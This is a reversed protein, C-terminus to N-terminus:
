FVCFYFVFYLFPKVLRLRFFSSQVFIFLHIFFQVFFVNKSLTGSSIASVNTTRLAEDVLGTLISVSFIQSPKHLHLQPRHTKKIRHPTQVFGTCTIAGDTCNPGLFQGHELPPLSSRHSIKEDVFCVGRLALVCKRHVCMASSYTM